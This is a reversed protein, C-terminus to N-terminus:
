IRAAGVELHWGIGPAPDGRRDAPGDRGPGVPALGDRSCPRDLGRRRLSLADMAWGALVRRYM